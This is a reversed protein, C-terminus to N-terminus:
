LFSGFLNVIVESVFPLFINPYVTFVLFTSIDEHSHGFRSKLTHKFLNAPTKDSVMKAAYGGFVSAGVM